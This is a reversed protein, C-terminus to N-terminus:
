LKDISKIIGSPTLHMVFRIKDTNRFIIECESLTNFHYVAIASMIEGKKSATEFVVSPLEEPKINIRHDILEGEKNFRAISEKGQSYFMVEFVQSTTKHWETSTADNFISNFAKEIIEPPRIDQKAYLRNFINKVM